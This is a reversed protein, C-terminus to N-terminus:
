LFFIQPLQNVFMMCLQVMDHLNGEEVYRVLKESFEGIVEDVNM